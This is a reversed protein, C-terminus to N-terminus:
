GRSYFLVAFGVVLFYGVIALALIALVKEFIDIKKQRVLCESCLPLKEFHFLPFHERSYGGRIPHFSVQDANVKQACKQCTYTKNEM